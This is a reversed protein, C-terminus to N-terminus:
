SRKEPDLPRRSKLGEGGQGTTQDRAEGIAPDNPSGIPLGPDAWERVPDTDPKKQASRSM